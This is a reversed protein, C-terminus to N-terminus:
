INQYGDKNFLHKYKVQHLMIGSMMSSVLNIKLNKSLVSVCDSLKKCQVNNQYTLETYLSSASDSDVRGFILMQIEYRMLKRIRKDQIRIYFVYMM